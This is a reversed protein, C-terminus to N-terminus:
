LHNDATLLLESIGDKDSLVLAIDVRVDFAAVSLEAVVVVVLAVFELELLLSLLLLLLKNKSLIPVMKRVTM